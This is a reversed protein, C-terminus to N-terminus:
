ELTSVGPPLQGDLGLLSREAVTFASSKNFMPNHLLDQGRRTVRVHTRGAADRSMSYREM